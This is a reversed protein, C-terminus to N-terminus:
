GNFHLWDTTTLLKIWFDSFSVFKECCWKYANRNRLMTGTCDQKKFSVGHFGIEKRARRVFESKELIDVRLQKEVSKVQKEACGWASKLVIRHLKAEWSDVTDTTVFKHGWIIRQCFVMAALITWLPQSRKAALKSRPVNTLTSTNCTIFVENALWLTLKQTKVTWHQELFLFSSM